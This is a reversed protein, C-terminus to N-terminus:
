PVYTPMNVAMFTDGLSIVRKIPIPEEWTDLILSFRFRKNNLSFVALVREAFRLFLYWRGSIYVDLPLLSIPTFKKNM